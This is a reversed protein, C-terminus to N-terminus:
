GSGPQKQEREYSADTGVKGAAEAEAIGSTEEVKIAGRSGAVDRQEHDPSPASSDGESYDGDSGTVSNPASGRANGAQGGGHYAIDTQGGHAMFGENKSVKGTHPNPYAGGESEGGTSRGHIERDGSMGPVGSVGDAEGKSGPNGSVPMPVKDSM